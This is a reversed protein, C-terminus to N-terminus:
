DEGADRGRGRLGVCCYLFGGLLSTVAQGLGEECSSAGRQATAMQVYYDYYYYYNTLITLLIM